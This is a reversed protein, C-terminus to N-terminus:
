GVGPARKHAAVTGSNDNEASLRAKLVLLLRQSLVQLLDFDKKVAVATKPNLPGSGQVLQKILKLNLEIVRCSLRLINLTKM